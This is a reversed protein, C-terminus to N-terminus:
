AVTYVCYRDRGRAKAEYLAKDATTILTEPLLDPITHPRASSVGLSLTMAGGLLSNPHTINLAKMAARISEGIQVAESVDAQPLLVAFEEGGYRAITSGPCCVTGMLVRAIIQLCQNGHERGQCDNYSKFFDIDGLIISLHTQDQSTRRWQHAIEAELTNRTVLRTLHDLGPRQEQPRSPASLGASQNALLGQVRQRLVTWHIPKNILDTAGAAFVRDIATADDLGTIMLVPIPRDDSLSQLAKCCELGDMHPMLVDLLVLNPRQQQFAALGEQGNCAEVVQYHERELFRRIQMRTFNDDDILLIMPKSRVAPPTVPIAEVSLAFQARNM